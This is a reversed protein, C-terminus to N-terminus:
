SRHTDNNVIVMLLASGVEIPFIEGFPWTYVQVVGVQGLLGGVVIFGFFLWNLFVLVSGKRWVLSFLSSLFDRM